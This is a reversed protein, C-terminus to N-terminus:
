YWTLFSQEGEEGLVVAPAKMEGFKGNKVCPPFVKLLVTCYIHIYEQNLVFRQIKMHYICVHMSEYLLPLFPVFMFIRIFEKSNM